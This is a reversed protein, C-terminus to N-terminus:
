DLGGPMRLRPFHRSLIARDDYAIAMRDRGLDGLCEIWTPFRNGLIALIHIILRGQAM